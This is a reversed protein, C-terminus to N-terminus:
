IIRCIIVEITQQFGYDIKLPSGTGFTLSINDSPSAHHGLNHRGREIREVPVCAEGSCIEDLM